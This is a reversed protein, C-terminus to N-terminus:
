YAAHVKMHVPKNCINKSTCIDIYHEVIHKVSTTISIITIELKNLILEMSNKSLALNLSHTQCEKNYGQNFM